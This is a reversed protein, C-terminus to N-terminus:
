YESRVVQGDETTEWALLAKMGKIRMEPDSGGTPLTKNYCVEIGEFVADDHQVLEVQGWNRETTDGPWTNEAGFLMQVEGSKMCQQKDKSISAEIKIAHSALAMCALTITKTFM